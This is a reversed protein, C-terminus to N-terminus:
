QFVEANVLGNADISNGSRSANISAIGLVASLASPAHDRVSAYNWVALAMSAAALAPLLRRAHRSLVVDFSPTTREHVRRMVRETFGHAFHPQAASAHVRLFDHLDEDNM